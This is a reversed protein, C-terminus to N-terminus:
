SRTSTLSLSEGSKLRVVMHRRIKTRGSTKGRRVTKRPLKISNVGVVHVGYASEIAKKVEIKGVGPQVAFTYQGQSQLRSSKESVVPVMLVRIPGVAVMGAVAPPAPHNEKPEHKKFISM